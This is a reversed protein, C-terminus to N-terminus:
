MVLLVYVCIGRFDCWMLVGSGFGVFGGSVMIWVWFRVWVSFNAGWVM